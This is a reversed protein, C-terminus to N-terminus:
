LSLKRSGFGFLFCASKSFRCFWGCVFGFGRFLVLWFWLQGFRL